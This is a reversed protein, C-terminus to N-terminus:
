PPRDADTDDAAGSKPASIDTWAPGDATRSRVRFPAPRTRIAGPVGKSYLNCSAPAHSFSDFVPDPLVPVHIPGHEVHSQERSPHHEEVIDAFHLIVVFDDSEYGDNAEAPLAAVNTTTVTASTSSATAIMMPMQTRIDASIRESPM